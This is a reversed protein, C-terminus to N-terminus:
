SPKRLSYSVPVVVQLESSGFEEPLAPLGGLGELMAIAHKDLIDYGSSHDLSVGLLSGKRAVRIRVRVEGEWGRMAAVRPYEQQRALLDTLRRRYNALLDEQSPMSAVPPAVVAAVAPPASQVETAAAPTLVPVQAVRSASEASSAMVQTSPSERKAAQPRIKQPVAAPMTEALPEPPTPSVPTMARLTVMLPPLEPSPVKDVRNWALVGAHIAVSILLIAWFRRGVAPPTYEICRQM